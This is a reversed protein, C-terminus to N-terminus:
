RTPADYPRAPSVSAALLAIVCSVLRTGLIEAASTSSFKRKQQRSSRLRNALPKRIPPRGAYSRSPNQQSPCRARLVEHKESFHNFFTGYAIDARDSIQAVTTADYGQREFLDWAAELVRARVELRRRERRGTKRRGRNM